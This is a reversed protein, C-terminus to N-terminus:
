RASLFPKQPKFDAETLGRLGQGQYLSEVVEKVAQHVTEQFMAATDLQYFTFPNFFLRYLRGIVPTALVEEENGIVGEAILSGLIGLGVPFGILWVLPIFLLACGSPQPPQGPVSGNGVGGTALMNILMSLMALVVILLLVM